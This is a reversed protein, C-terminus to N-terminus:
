NDLAVPLWYYIRVRVVGDTGNSDSMAVGATDVINVDIQQAGVLPIVGNPFLPSTIKQNATLDDTSGYINVTGGNQGLAIKVGTGGAVVTTKITAQACVVVAGDPLATTLAKFTSATFMVTEEIVKLQLGEALSVGFSMASASDASGATPHFTAASKLDTVSGNGLVIQNSATVAAQYGFGGSNTRQGGGNQDAYAGFYTSTTGTYGAANRGAHYGFVSMNGGAGVDNLASTGMVTNTVQNAIGRGITIGNLTINAGDTTLTSYDTLTSAGSAVPIRTATLAGTIGGGAFDVTWNGASTGTARYWAGTDTQRGLQNVYVPVAAARAADDAFTVNRNVAGGAATLAKATDTGTGAEVTSALLLLGEASTTGTAIGVDGKALAAWSGASTATGRYYLGTDAQRLLQGVYAPVAAGRAAADAVMTVQFDAAAALAASGLGLSTRQASASAGNLLALGATTCAAKAPAVAGADAGLLVTPTTNTVGAPFDVM